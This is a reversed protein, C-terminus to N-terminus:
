IVRSDKEENCIEFIADAIKGAGQKSPEIPSVESYDEKENCLCRLDIVKLNRDFAEKLIVENFLAIATREASPLNPIRDYVTCVTVRGFQKIIKKLMIQYEQRFVERAKHLAELSERISSTPKDLLGSANLHLLDNGGCSVFVHTSIFDTENKQSVLKELQDTVDIVINGDVASLHVLGTEGFYQQLQSTVSEGEGVYPQNDFISDGLLIIQKQGYQASPESILQQM